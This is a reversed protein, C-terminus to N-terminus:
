EVMVDFDYEEYQRPMMGIVFRKIRWSSLLFSIDIKKERVLRPFSTFLMQMPPTVTVGSIGVAMKDFGYGKSYRKPRTRASGATSPDPDKDGELMAFPNLLWEFDKEIKEFEKDM